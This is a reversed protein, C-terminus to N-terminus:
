LWPGAFGLYLMLTAAGGAALLQLRNPLEVDDGQLRSLVWDVACGSGIFFVPLLQIRYRSKVHLWLFIILNYAFFLLLM